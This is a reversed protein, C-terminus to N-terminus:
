EQTFGFPTLLIKVDFFYSLKDAFATFMVGVYLFLMIGVILSKVQMALLMANMNPAFRALAAVALDSLLLVFIIKFLSECMTANHQVCDHGQSPQPCCYIDYVYLQTSSVAASNFSSVM